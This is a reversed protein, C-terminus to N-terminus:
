FYPSYGWHLSGLRSILFMVEFYPDYGWLNAVYGWLEQDYGWFGPVYGWNQFELRLNLFM